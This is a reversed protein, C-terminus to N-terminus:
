TCISTRRQIYLPLYEVLSFRPSGSRVVSVETPSGGGGGGITVYHPITRGSCVVWRMWYCCRLALLCLFFASGTEGCFCLSLSLRFSLSARGVGLPATSALIALARVASMAGREAEDVVEEDSVVGGVGDVVLRKLASCESPAFFASCFSNCCRFPLLGPHPLSCCFCDCVSYM